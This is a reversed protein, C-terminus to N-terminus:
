NTELIRLLVDELQEVAFSYDEIGLEDKKADIDELLDPIKDTVPLAITDDREELVKAEPVWKQVAELIGPMAEPESDIKM